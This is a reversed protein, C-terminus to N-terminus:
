WIYVKILDGAPQCYTIYFFRPERFVHSSSWCELANHPERRCMLSYLYLYSLVATDRDYIEMSSCSEEIEYM